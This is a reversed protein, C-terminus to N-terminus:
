TPRSFPYLYSFKCPTGLWNESERIEFMIAKNSSEGEREGEVPDVM